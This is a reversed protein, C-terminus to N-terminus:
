HRVNASLGKEALASTLVRSLEADYADQQLSDLKQKAAELTFNNYIACQLVLDTFPACIQKLM